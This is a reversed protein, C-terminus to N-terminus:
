EDSTLDIVTTLESRESANCKVAKRPKGYFYSELRGRHEPLMIGGAVATVQAERDVLSRGVTGIVRRPQVHKLFEVLETFSSHESYPISYLVCGPFKSSRWCSEKRTWGTCRFGVVKSYGADLFDALSDPSSGVRGMADFVVGYDEKEAILKEPIAGCIEMIKRRKKPVFIKKGLVESIRVACSEKGLRYGGVVFMTGPENEKTVIRSIMDLAEERSPHVFRRDSYTTDLWVTNIVGYAPVTKLLAASARFDGTHLGTWGGTGCFLFMVAGPCHNADICTVKIGAIETPEGLELKVVRSPDVGIVQIVLEATIPSCYITGRCFGKTLGWTHDGHFHTLFYTRSDQRLRVPVGFGDVVFAETQGPIETIVKYAWEKKGKDLGALSRKPPM